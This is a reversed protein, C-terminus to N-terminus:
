DTLIKVFIIIIIIKKTILTILVEAPDYLKSFINKKILTVQLM